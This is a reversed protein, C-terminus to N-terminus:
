LCGNHTGTKGAVDRIFELLLTREDINATMADGNITITVDQM